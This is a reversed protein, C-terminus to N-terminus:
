IFWEVHDDIFMGLPRCKSSFYVEVEAGNLLEPHTKLIEGNPLSELLAGNRDILHLLRFMADNRMKMKLWPIDDSVPVIRLLYSREAPLAQVRVRVPEKHLVLEAAEAYLSLRRQRIIFPFLMFTIGTLFLPMIAIWILLHSPDPQLVLEWVTSCLVLGGIIGISAFIIDIKQQSKERGALEKNKFRVNIEATRKQQMIEVRSRQIAGM